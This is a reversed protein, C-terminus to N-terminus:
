FDIKTEKFFSILDFLKLYKKTPINIANAINEKNKTKKVLLPVSKVKIVWVCFTTEPSLPEKM